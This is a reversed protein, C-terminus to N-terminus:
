TQNPGILPLVPGSEFAALRDVLASATMEVSVLRSYERRVFGEEIAHDLFQLLGNFYGGANLLGCPKQHLGLQSWTLVEFFEELTGWGGPLAIFADSLSAMIAKREHMSRVVRLDSLGAHVVEAKMLADPIVGTIHGGAALVTDALTGMLGIGGAGYVVAIGRETLMRGLEAAASRYESRQGRSAGAFVCVRTLRTGMLTLRDVVHGDTDPLLLVVGIPGQRRL